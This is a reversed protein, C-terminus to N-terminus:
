IQVKFIRVVINYDESELQSYKLILGNINPNDEWMKYVLTNNAKDTPTGGYCYKNKDECDTFYEAPDKEATELFIGTLQKDYARTFIYSVNYKEIIEKVTDNSINEATLVISVEKLISEDSWNNEEIYREKGEEDLTNYSGITDLLSLSPYVAISERESYGEIMGGYDWWSLVTCDAETYNKIYDFSNTMHEMYATEYTEEDKTYRLNTYNIWDQNLYMKGYIIVPNYLGELPEQSIIEKDGEQYEEESQNKDSNKDDVCGSIAVTALIFALIITLVKGKM